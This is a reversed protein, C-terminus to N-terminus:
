KRGNMYGGVHHYGHTPGTGHVQTKSEDMVKEVSDPSFLWSGALGEMELEDSVGLGNSRVQKCVFTGNPAVLGYYAEVLKPNVFRYTSGMRIKM